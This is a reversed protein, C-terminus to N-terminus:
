RLWLGVALELSLAVSRLVSATRCCSDEASVGHHDMVALHNEMPVHRNCGESRGLTTNPLRAQLVTVVTDAQLNLQELQLKGTLAGCCEQLRLLPGSNPLMQNDGPTRCLQM